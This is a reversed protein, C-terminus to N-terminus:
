ALADSVLVFPQNFLSQVRLLAHVQVALIQHSYVLVQILLEHQVWDFNDLTEVMLRTVYGLHYRAAAAVHQWISCIGNAHPWVVESAQVDHAVQIGAVNVLENRESAHDDSRRGNNGIKLDREKLAVYALVLHLNFKVLAANSLGRLTCIAAGLLRHDDDVVAAAEIVALQDLALLAGAVNGLSFSWVSHIQAREVLEYILCLRSVANLDRAYVASNWCAQLRRLAAQPANVLGVDVDNV